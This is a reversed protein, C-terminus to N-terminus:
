TSTKQGSQVAQASFIPGRHAQPRKKGWPKLRHWPLFYLSVEHFVHLVLQTFFQFKSDTRTTTKQAILFFVHLTMQNPLSACPSPGVHTIGHRFHNKVRETSVESFNMGM